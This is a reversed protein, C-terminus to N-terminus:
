PCGVFWANLFDFIDAINTAGSHNFDATGSFWDNVYDFVDQVSVGGGSWDALCQCEDIVGDHNADHAAGFAIENLDNIGNANCDSPARLDYEWLETGAANTTATFLLRTGLIAPTPFSATPSGVTAGTPLSAVQYTGMETGDTRWLNGSNFFGAVGDGLRFFAGTPATDSVRHTGQPTLDSVWVRGSSSFLVQSGLAYFGQGRVNAALVTTGALTGDTIYINPYATSGVMSFVVRGNVVGSNMQYDGLLLRYTGAATGDSRWVENMSNQFVIANPLAATSLSLTATNPGVAFPLTQVAGTQGDIRFVRVASNQQALFVGNEGISAFSGITYFSGIGTYGQARNTIPITGAATGDSRWIQQGEVADRSAFYLTGSPTAAARPFYTTSIAPGLPTTGAASGDSQYLTTTTNFLTYQSATVITGSIRDGFAYPGVRRTGATTGDTTWLDMGVEDTATFLMKGPVQGGPSSLITFGAPNSGPSAVALDRTIHTGAATGDSVWLETGTVSHTNNFFFRGSSGDSMAISPRFEPIEAPGFERHTGAQTGDTSWLDAFGQIAPTVSTNTPEQLFFYARNAFPFITFTNLAAGTANTAPVSLVNTTLSPSNVCVIKGTGYMPALLLNGVITAFYPSSLYSSVDALMSSTSGDTQWIQIIPSAGTTDNRRCILRSGLTGFCGTYASPFGAISHISATSTEYIYMSSDSFSGHAIFAYRGPLVGEGYVANNWVYISGLSVATNGATKWLSHQAEGTFNPARTYYLEDGLVYTNFDYSGTNGTEIHVTGAVTGDTAWLQSYYGEADDYFFFARTQGAVFGTRNFGYTYNTPPLRITGAATGDTSWVETSESGDSTLGRGFILRNNVVVPKAWISSSAPQESIQITGASTGNSVYLGDATDFIINGNLMGLLRPNSSNYTGGLQSWIDKLLIPQAVGPPPGGCLAAVALSYALLKVRPREMLVLICVVKRVHLLHNATLFSAL